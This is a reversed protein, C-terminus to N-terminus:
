PATRWRITARLGTDELQMNVSIRDLEPFLGFSRDGQRFEPQVPRMATGFPTSELYSDRWMWEGQWPHRPKFGFIEFHRDIAQNVSDAVGAAILPYVYGMGDVAAARYDTFVKTHLAPLQKEIQTLDLTLQAGNLTATTGEGITVATTWPLNSILLYDGQIELRLHIQVIDAVNLTYIWAERGQVKHLEGSGGIESRRVVADALFEQVKEPDALEIMITAPQTAVSAIFPLLSDFGELNLMEKSVAGWIDGGGLAVIPTSDQVALHIGSGISDFIEPDVSAYEVLADALERSMSVRLDDNVNLSLMMSPAPAVSPIALEGGSKVTVLADEVENYIDSDLLPLIFSQIEYRGEGTKDFRVAIPDFFQQWYDAYSNVFDEYAEAERKSVDTVADPDLAELNAITGYRKSTVILDEGITYDRDELYRPAYGRDILQQKGPVNRHGDLLYLMAGAVLIEMEARAQMRRLQAIKVEPSVIHRIFPDSFYFYARTHDAVTLQQQMYLFESSNGLKGRDRRPKLKLMRDIEPRSTGYLLVSGQMTWHVDDGDETTGTKVAGDVPAELGLLDLVARTLAPSALNAVITTHTGDIFFLDPAVIAFDKIAGLAEIQDLTSDSIGLRRKYRENLDYEVSKVALSSEFRMFQDAGGDFVERLADINRFWAFFRDEPVYDALEFRRLPAESEELMRDFPHSEVQVPKISDISRSAKADLGTVPNAILDLQMSERIAARGGMVDFYSAQPLPERRPAQLKGDPELGYLAAHRALWNRLVPADSQHLLPRWVEIRSKAFAELRAAAAGRSALDGSRMAQVLAPVTQAQPGIRELAVLSADRLQPDSSQLARVLSPVAAEAEDGILGLSEAAAVSGGDLERILRAVQADMDPVGNRWARIRMLARVAAQYIRPNGDSIAYVLTDEVEPSDPDIRALASIAYERVLVAERADSAMEVLRAVAPRALLGAHGLAEATSMRVYEQEDELAEVLSPMVDEDRDAIRALAMAAYGRAIDAEREGHLTESLGPVAVPGMRGLTDVVAQLFVPDGNGLTRLLAPMAPKGIKELATSAAARVNEDDDDLLRVLASVDAESRAALQGLSTAAAARVQADRDQLRGNLDFASKRARRGLNGLSASAAERVRADRHDLLATLDDAVKSARTGMQGTARAAAAIVSPDIDDFRAVLAPISRHAKEGIDGLADAAARRVRSDPDELASSLAAIVKKDASRAEGLTAAAAKRVQWDRSSLDSIGYQGDAAWALPMALTVLLSITMCQTTKKM